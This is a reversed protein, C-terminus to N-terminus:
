ENRTTTDLTYPMTVGEKTPCWEGEFGIYYKRLSLYKVDQFESVGLRIQVGKDEDEFLVTELEDQKM